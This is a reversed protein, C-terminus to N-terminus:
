RLLRAVTFPAIGAVPPTLEDDGRHVAVTGYGGGSQPERHVEVSAGPVDVVWYEPVGAAAYLEAKRGRDLAHSSVAVEVVLLATTPHHDSSPAADTLAIDPEPVSDSAVHLPLQVRLFAEGGALLQTLWAIPGAHASSQPSMDVIWGDILEVRQDDLAGSEVIRGYTEADFRHTSVETAVGPSYALTVASEGRPVFSAGLPCAPSM